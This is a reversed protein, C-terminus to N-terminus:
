VHTIEGVGTNRIWHYIFAIDIHPQYSYILFLLLTKVALIVGASGLLILVKDILKENDFALFFLIVYFFFLYANADLFVNATGNNSILGNIVAWAIVLALAILPTTYINKAFSLNFRKQFLKIILVIFLILFIGIRISINVESLSIFFLYGKSGVFLEALAILVGNQINKLSVLLTTILILSFLTIPIWAYSEGLLYFKYSIISFFEAILFFVLCKYFFKKIETINM